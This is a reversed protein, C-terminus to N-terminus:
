ALGRLDLIRYFSDIDELKSCDKYVEEFNVELYVYQAIKLQKHMGRLAELEFGQIDINIFDYLHKDEFNEDLWNDLPKINVVIKSLYNIDPYSFKHTGFELLSSSEGNNALNLNLSDYKRGAAFKGLTM